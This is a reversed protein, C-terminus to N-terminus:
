HSTHRATLHHVYAIKTSNIPLAENTVFFNYPKNFGTHEQTLHLTDKERINGTIHKVEIQM